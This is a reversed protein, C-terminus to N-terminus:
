ILNFGNGINGEYEKYEYFFFIKDLLLNEM